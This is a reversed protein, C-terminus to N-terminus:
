LNFFLSFSLFAISILSVPPINLCIFNSIFIDADLIHGKVVRTHIDSIDPVVDVTGGHFDLAYYLNPRVLISLKITPFKIPHLEM